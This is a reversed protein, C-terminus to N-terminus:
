RSGAVDAAWQPADGRARRLSRGPQADPTVAAALSKRLRTLWPLGHRAPDFLAVAHRRYFHWLSGSFPRAEAQQLLDLYDRVFRRERGPLDPLDALAQLLGLRMRHEKRMRQLRSGAAHYANTQHIRYHVLYEDLYQVNGRLAAGVGIWWDHPVDAPFPMLQRVLETRVLTTHGVISNRYLLGRLDSGSFKRREGAPSPLVAPPCGQFKHTAHHMLCASGDWAQRMQALKGPLWLDDQDSLAVWPTQVQGIAQEFNATVGLTRPNRRLRIRPDAEAHRRLIEMTGDTSGDDSVVIEAVGAQVRLSRLQAELYSEGNYTCLVLAFPDPQNRM